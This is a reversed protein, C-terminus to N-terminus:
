SARRRSDSEGLGSTLRDDIEEIAAALSNQCQAISQRTDGDLRDLRALVQAMAAENRQALADVRTEMSARLDQIRSTETHEALARQGYLEREHRRAELIVSSQLYVVYILFLVTLVAAAGILLLGLPAEITGVIWSLTTPTTFAHWNVATFLALAGLVLVILITRLYV